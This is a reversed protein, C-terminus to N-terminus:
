DAQATTPQAAPQWKKWLLRVPFYVIAAWLAIVPGRGILFVLLTSLSSMAEGFGAEAASRLQAGLTEAPAAIEERLTFYVNAFVVRNESTQREAQIRAVEAGANAIQRQLERVNGDPYTQKQLLEQLRRLTNQANTLRAELDARQRTIEDAAQEEREVDGLTKLDSM